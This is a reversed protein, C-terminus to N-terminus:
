AVKWYLNKPWFILHIVSLIWDFLLQRFNHIAQSPSLSNGCAKKAWLVASDTADDTVCPLTLRSSIVDVSDNLLVARWDWQRADNWNEDFVFRVQSTAIHQCQTGAAAKVVFCYTSVRQNTNQQKLMVVICRTRITPCYVKRLDNSFLVGPVFLISYGIATSVRQDDFNSLVETVLWENHYHYNDFTVWSRHYIKWLQINEVSYLFNTITKRCTDAIRFIVSVINGCVVSTHQVSIM